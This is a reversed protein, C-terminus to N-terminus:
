FLFTHLTGYSLLITLKNVKFHLLVSCNLELKTRDVFSLINVYRQGESCSVIAHDDDIMELLRGVRMPNGRIKELLSFLEQLIVM